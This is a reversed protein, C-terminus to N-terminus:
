FFFMALTYLKVRIQHTINCYAVSDSEFQEFSRYLQTIDSLKLQKDNSFYM